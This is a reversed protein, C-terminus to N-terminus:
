LEVLRRDSHKHGQTRSETLAMIKDFRCEHVWMTLVEAVRAHDPRIQEILGTIRQTRGLAAASTQM